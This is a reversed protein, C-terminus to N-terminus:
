FALAIGTWSPISLRSDFGPSLLAVSRAASQSSVNPQRWLVLFTHSCRPWSSTTSLRVWCLVYCLSIFYPPRYCRRSCSDLDSFTHEGRCNIGVSVSCGLRCNYGLRHALLLLPLRERRCRPIRRHCLISLWFRLLQRPSTLALSNFISM